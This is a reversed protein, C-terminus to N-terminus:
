HAVVQRLHQQQPTVHKRRARLLLQLGLLCSSVGEAPLHHQLTAGASQTTFCTLGDKWWRRQQTEWYAHHFAWIAQEECSHTTEHSMTWLQQRLVHDASQHRGDLTGHGHHRLSHSAACCKHRRKASILQFWLFQSTSPTHCWIYLGPGCFWDYPDIKHFQSKHMM